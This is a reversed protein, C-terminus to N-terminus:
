WSPVHVLGDTKYRSADQPSKLRFLKSPLTHFIKFPSAQVRLATNQASPSLNPLTAWLWLRLKPLYWHFGELVGLVNWINVLVTSDKAAVPGNFVDWFCSHTPVVPIKAQSMVLLCSRRIDGWYCFMVVLPNGHGTCVDRTGSVTRQPTSEHHQWTCVSLLIFIHCGISGLSVWFTFDTSSSSDSEITISLFSALGRM